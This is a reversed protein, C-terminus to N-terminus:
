QPLQKLEIDHQSFDAPTGTYGCHACEIVALSADHALPWGCNPCIFPVTEGQELYFSGDDYTIM